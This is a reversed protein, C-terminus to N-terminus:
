MTATVNHGGDVRLNMKGSTETCAGPLLLGQTRVIHTLFLQPSRSTDKLTGELEVSSSRRRRKRARRAGSL